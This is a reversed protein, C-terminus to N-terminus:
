PSIDAMPMAVKHARTTMVAMKAHRRRNRWAALADSTGSAIEISRQDPGMTGALKVQIAYAAFAQHLKPAM